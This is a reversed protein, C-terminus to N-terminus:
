DLLDFISMFLCNGYTLSVETKIGLVLSAVAAIMLIILTLDQWAEWLFRQFLRLHTAAFSILQITNSIFTSGCCVLFSRGEKIPYTNSGFSSRRKSLEADDAVIGKDLDSKLM